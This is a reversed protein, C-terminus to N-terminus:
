SCSIRACLTCSTNRTTDQGVEHSPTPGRGHADSLRNRITGVSKFVETYFSPFLGHEQCTEVLKKLTDKDFNVPWQKADCITKLVSEFASGCCTLTGDFDGRRHRVFAELLESNAQKFEPRSLVSLAPAVIETYTVESELPIVQPYSEPKTLGYIDAATVPGDKFRFDSLRFAIGEERLVENAADVGEQGSRCSPCQFWFELFDLVKETSCDSFHQLLADEVRNAIPALGSLGGYQALL